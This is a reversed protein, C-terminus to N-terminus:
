RERDTLSDVDMLSSMLTAREGMVRRLLDAKHEFNAYFTGIGIDARACIAHITAARYGKEAFTAAAGDVLRQLTAGAGRGRPSRRREGPQASPSNLNPM